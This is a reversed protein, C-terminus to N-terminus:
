LNVSRSNFKKIAPKVYRLETTGSYPTLYAVPEGHRAVTYSEGQEVRRIVAALDERLERQSITRMRAVTARHLVNRM